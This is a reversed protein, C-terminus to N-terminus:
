YLELDEGLGYLDYALLVWGVVPIMRLSGKAGFRVFRYPSSVLASAGAGIVSSKIRRGARTELFDAVAEIEETRSSVATELKGSRFGKDQLFDYRIGDEQQNLIHGLKYIGFM